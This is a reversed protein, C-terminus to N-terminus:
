EYGLVVAELPDLPAGDVVIREGSAALVSATLLDDPWPTAATGCNVVVTIRQDGSVRDYRLLDGDLPALDLAGSRLAPTAARLALLRRYLGLMSRPDDRQSAFSHTSANTPFPLWPATAWGHGTDADGDPTWPIPARCGDRGNPDVVRDPPVEGDTLGLEEGAYLFPTGRMTLSLVAAARAHADSGYRSRHRPQDHNSLVWTPWRPESFDNQIAAITRHIQAADWRVHVARFDFSLHLEPRDPTGVYSASEGASLLYVEGVMMPRQPYSDLLSRIRRLLEHGRPRDTALLPVAALEESLDDVDTGKGILNVVDSRFGDVGRDLWFRLTHHMANEVEPNAWNLDPQEALFLHLYSQGTHEDPTWAPVGKFMSMWNTPPSGDPRADRWVYWDRRPSDISSRSEIFWPHKSSTHNPVWDLLLRLNCEHLVALMEDFDDLTGFVPDINCYDAVDYGFDHMPSPYIPSLWVADVGLAAIDDVHDIIGRLDGVGDGNGDAFSRPYIQYVVADRWWEVDRADVGGNEGTM